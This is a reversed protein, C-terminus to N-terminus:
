AKPDLPVPNQAVERHSQQGLNALRVDDLKFVMFQQRKPHQSIKDVVYACTEQSVYYRISDYHSALENLIRRLRTEAKRSLEVEIAIRRDGMIEADPIHRTKKKEEFSWEYRLRRESRWGATSRRALVQEIHLRVENVAEIHEFQSPQLYRYPQSMLRLGKTTLYIWAPQNFFIKEREILGIQALRQMRREVAPLRVLGAEKTPAQALRGMLFRIHETTVAYQDGIWSLM